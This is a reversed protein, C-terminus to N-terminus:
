DTHLFIKVDQYAHTRTDEVLRLYSGSSLGGHFGASTQNLYGHKQAFQLWWVASYDGGFPPSNYPFGM